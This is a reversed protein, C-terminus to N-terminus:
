RELQGPTGRGFQAFPTHCYVKADSEKMTPRRFIEPRVPDFWDQYSRSFFNVNKLPNNQKAGKVHSCEDM